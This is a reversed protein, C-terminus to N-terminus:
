NLPRFNNALIQSMIKSIISINKFCLLNNPTSSLFYSAWNKYCLQRMGVIWLVHYHTMHGLFIPHVGM